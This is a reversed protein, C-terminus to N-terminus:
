HQASAGMSGAMMMMMMMMMSGGMGGSDHGKEGSGDMMSMMPMMMLMMPNTTNPPAGNIQDIRSNLQMTAMVGMLSSMLSAENARRRERRLALRTSKQLAGSEDSIKKIADRNANVQVALQNHADRLSAVTKNFTELSVVSTPLRLQASGAPTRLTANQVGRQASLSRQIRPVGRRFQIRSKEAFSEDDEDFDEDFDEDDEALEFQMEDMDEFMEQM